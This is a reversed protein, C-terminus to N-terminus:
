FSRDIWAVDSVVVVVDCTKDRCEPLRCRLNEVSKQAQEVSCVFGSWLTEWSDSGVRRVFATVQKRCTRDYLLKSLTSTTYVM